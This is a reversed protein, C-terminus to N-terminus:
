NLMKFFHSIWRYGSIRTFPLRWKVQWYGRCGDHRHKRNERVVGRGEINLPQFRDYSEANAQMPLQATFKWTRTSSIGKTKRGGWRAFYLGLTYYVFIDTKKKNWGWEKEMKEPTVRLFELFFNWGRVRHETSNNKKKWGLPFNLKMGFWKCSFIISVM